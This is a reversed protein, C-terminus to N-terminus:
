ECSWYEDLGARIPALFRSPRVLCYYLLASLTVIDLFWAVNVAFHVATLIQGKDPSM